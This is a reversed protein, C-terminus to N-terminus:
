RLTATSETYLHGLFWKPNDVWFNGKLNPLEACDYLDMRFVARYNGPEKFIYDERGIRHGMSVSAGPLVVLLRLADIDPFHRSPPAEQVELTGTPGYFEILGPDFDNLGPFM